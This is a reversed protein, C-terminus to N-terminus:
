SETGQETGLFLPILEEPAHLLHDPAAERLTAAPHWGWAAAVAVAGAARSEVMDGKTDGIYYPQHGPHAKRVKKIKKIKSIEQDAGLIDKVGRAGYAELFAAVTESVNSTVVYVTHAAALRTVIAPMGEFPRVRQNAEKIRPEFQRVLKKLRWVPFGAKVLQQIMNGEFLKLFADRSNLKDFGMEACVSTFAGFFAEYSDAIVGDFDFMIVRPM